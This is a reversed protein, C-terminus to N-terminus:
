AEFITTYNPRLILVIDFDHSKKAILEETYMGEMMDKYQESVIKTGGNAFFIIDGVKIDKIKVIM